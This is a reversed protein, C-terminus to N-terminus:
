VYDCVGNLYELVEVRVDYYYVRRLFKGLVQVYDCVRQCYVFNNFVVGDCEFEYYINDVGRYNCFNEKVDDVYM